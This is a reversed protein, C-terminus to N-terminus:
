SGDGQSAVTMKPDLRTGGFVHRVKYEVSDTDFDGDTPNIDGGGVRQANPAKIFIEPEEHGVLFGMELAPRDSAPNAFLFWSTSGNASNAILPLYPDVNLRVRNRMWNAVQMKQNSTGGAESLEIQTANLINQAVIELAPPVVLEVMEILIPEGQEDVQAAMVQLASQLAAISLAPNGTVINKNGGTYLSAHPGNADVYLKTAFRSESRRAARGLRVPIDTLRQLDDNILTEWSIPVRRGHKAVKYTYPSQETLKAEPYESSEKVTELEQDAGLMGPTREVTRFDRVTARHVYNQWTSPYERYAALMQRDLIDGFLIPFDSTTMAEKLWYSSKRGTIVDALLKAAEALKAMYASNKGGRRAGRGEGGFLTQVSAEEARITEIVQLLDPM